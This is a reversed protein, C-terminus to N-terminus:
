PGVVLPSRPDGVEGLDQTRVHNLTKDSFSAIKNPTASGSKLVLTSNSIDIKEAFDEVVKREEPTLASEDLSSSEDEKPKQPAPAEEPTLTLSPTEVGELTLTPMKPAENELTLKIDDPM